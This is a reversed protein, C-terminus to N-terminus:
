DETTGSARELQAQDGQVAGAPTKVPPELELDPERMQVSGKFECGEELQIQPAIIDGDVVSTSRIVIREGARLDGAVRGEIEIARATINAWVDAEAEVRVGSRPFFVSGIVQGAILLDEEGRIEGTIRIGRTVAAGHSRGPAEGHEAVGADPDDTKLPDQRPKKTLM